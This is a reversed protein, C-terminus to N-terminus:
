GYRAATSCCCRSTGAEDVTAGFAPHAPLARHVADALREGDVEGLLEFCLPELYTGHSQGTKEHMWIGLQNHSLPGEM